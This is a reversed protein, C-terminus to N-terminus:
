FAAMNNGEAKEKNTNQYKQVNRLDKTRTNARM